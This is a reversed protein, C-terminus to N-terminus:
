LQKLRVNKAEIKMPPGRHVQIGILGQMKRGVTEDDILMSMLRAVDDDPSDIGTHPLSLFLDVGDFPIGDVAAAATLCLMTELDIAPESDPGKGVLGPCMANHLARYRNTGTHPM